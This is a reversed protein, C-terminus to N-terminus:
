WQLEDKTNTKFSPEIWTCNLYEKTNCWDDNNYGSWFTHFRKTALSYFVGDKEKFRDLFVKNGLSTIRDRSNTASLASTTSVFLMKDELDDLKKWAITEQNLAYVQLFKGM